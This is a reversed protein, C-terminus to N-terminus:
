SANNKRLKPAVAQKKRKKAMARLTGGWAEASCDLAGFALLLPGKEKKYRIWSTQSASPFESLCSRLTSLRTRRWGDSRVGPIGLQAAKTSRIYAYTKTSIDLRM